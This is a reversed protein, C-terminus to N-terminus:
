QSKPCSIRNSIYGISIFKPKGDRSAALCDRVELFDQLLEDQLVTQSSGGMSPKESAAAFEKEKEMNIRHEDTRGWPRPSPTARPSSGMGPPPGSMWAGFLGPPKPKSDREELNFYRAETFEQLEDKFVAHGGSALSRKETAAALDKEKELNTRSEDLQPWPRM